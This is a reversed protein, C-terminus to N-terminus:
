DTRGFEYRWSHRIAFLYSAASSSSRCFIGPRCSKSFPGCLCYSEAQCAEDTTLTYAVGISRCWIETRDPAQQFRMTASKIDRVEGVRDEPSAYELVPARPTSLHRLVRCPM